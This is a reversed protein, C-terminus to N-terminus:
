ANCKYSYSCSRCGACYTSRKEQEKEIKAELKRKKESQKAESIEVELKWDEDKWSELKNM